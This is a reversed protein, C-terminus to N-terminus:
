DLPVSITTIAYPVSNGVPYTDEPLSGFPFDISIRLTGGKFTSPPSLTIEYVCAGQDNLIGKGISAKTNWTGQKINLTSNKINKFDGVGDCVNGSTVTLFQDTTLVVRIIVNNNVVADTETTESFSGFLAVPILILSSFIAIIGFIGSRKKESAEFEVESIEATTMTQDSTGEQEM